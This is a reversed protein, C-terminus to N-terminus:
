GNDRLREGSLWQFGAWVLDLSGSGSEDRGVQMEFIGLAFALDDLGDLDRIFVGEDHGAAERFFFTKQDTDAGSGIDDSGDFDGATWFVRAFQDYCDGARRTFTVQAGSQGFIGASFYSSLEHRLWTM